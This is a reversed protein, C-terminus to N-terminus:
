TVYWINECFHLLFIRYRTIGGGPYKYPATGQEYSRIRDSVETDGEKVNPNWLEYLKLTQM